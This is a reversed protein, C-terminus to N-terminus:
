GREPHRRRSRGAAVGHCALRGQKCRLRLGARVWTAPAAVRSAAQLLPRDSIEEGFAQRGSPWSQQSRSTTGSSNRAVTSFMARATGSARSESPMAQRRAKPDSWRRTRVVVRPDTASSESGHTPRASNWDRTLAKASMRLCNATPSLRKGGPVLSSGDCVKSRMSATSFSLISGSEAAWALCPEGIKSGDVSNPHGELVRISRDFQWGPQLGQSDRVWRVAPRQPRPRSEPVSLAPTTAISRGRSKARQRPVCGCQGPGRGCAGARGSQGSFTTLLLRPSPM